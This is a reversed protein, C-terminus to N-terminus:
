MRSNSRQTLRKRSPLHYQLTVEHTGFKNCSELTLCGFEERVDPSVLFRNEDSLATKRARIQQVHLGVLKHFLAHRNELTNGASLLSDSLPANSGM